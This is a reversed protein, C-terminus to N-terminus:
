SPLGLCAGINVRAEVEIAATPTFEDDKDTGEADDVDKERVEAAICERGGDRSLRGGEDDDAAEDADRARRSALRSGKIADEEADVGFPWLLNGFARVPRM